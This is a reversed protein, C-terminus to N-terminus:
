RKEVKETLINQKAIQVLTLLVQKRPQLQEKKIRGLDTERNGPPLTTPESAAM